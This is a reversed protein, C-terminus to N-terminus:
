SSSQWEDLIQLAQRLAEIERERSARREAWSEEGEVCMASLGQLEDLAARYLRDAAAHADQAALLADDATVVDTEKQGKEASTADIAGQTTGQFQTFDAAAQAEAADVHSITRDFDDLIVQLLGFIGRSAETKGAYPGSWSVAPARDGVTLGERDAGPPTYQLLSGTTGYFAQLIGIAQEVAAKGARAEALTRQSQAREDARLRAADNLARHFGAIEQSLDAIERM